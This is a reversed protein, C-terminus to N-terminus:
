GIGILPQQRDYDVFKQGWKSSVATLLSQIQKLQIVKPFTRKFFMM